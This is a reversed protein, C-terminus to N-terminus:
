ATTDWPSRPFTMIRVDRYWGEYLGGAFTEIQRRIEIKQSRWGRLLAKMRYHFAFVLTSLSIDMSIWEQDTLPERRAPRNKKKPNADSIEDYHNRLIHAALCTM